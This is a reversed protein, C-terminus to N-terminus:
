AHGTHVTDYEASVGANPPLAFTRLGLGVDIPGAFQCTWGAPSFVFCNDLMDNGDAVLVDVISM